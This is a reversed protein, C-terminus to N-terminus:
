CSVGSACNLVATVNMSQLLPINAAHRAGGIIIGGGSSAGGAGERFPILAPTSDDWPQTPIPRSVFRRIVEIRSQLRDEDFSIAASNLDGADAGDVSCGDCGGEEM